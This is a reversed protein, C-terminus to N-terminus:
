MRYAFWKPGYLCAAMEDLCGSTSDWQAVGVVGVIAIAVGVLVM